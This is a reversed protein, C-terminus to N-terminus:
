SLFKVLLWHVTLGVVIIHPSKIFSIIKLFVTAGSDVLFTISQGTIVLTVQPLKRYEPESKDYMTLSLGDAKHANIKAGIHNIAFM